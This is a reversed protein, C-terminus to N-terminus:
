RMRAKQLGDLLRDRTEDLRWPLIRAVQELTFSPAIKRLTRIVDRADDIRGLEVHSCAIYLYAYLLKPTREVARTQRRIAEDYHRLLYHSIGAYYEWLPPAFPDLNFATEIMELARDPDGWYNLANGFTARVEANEPALALAKELNAIAPEYRRMFTQIWGLRTQAIASTADLAVGREALENARDLNDAFGPLNYVWGYYHCLALFGYAEAFNADVEIAGEFCRTAELFNEPTYLHIHARGKLFLDYAEVSNTPKHASLVKDAPTLNVQLASVIQERINDQFEFIEAMSGDYREAWLHRGNACDILQANVRLRDGMKRVSGEVVHGVGLKRAIEGIDVSVGKFAFSSTRAVVYVGSIKSIDTILDEAMGDSFYEQEPDGSLNEFPLVAISPKDALPLASSTEETATTKTSPNSEAQEEGTPGVFRYGRRPLTEIWREGGPEQAFVRRLAAIQVTLNSEEIAQGPWAAEILAEKAVPTGPRAVLAGLLAVARQGVAVPKDSLFLIDAETDLRFPGFEYSTPM